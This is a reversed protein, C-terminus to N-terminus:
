TYQRFYAKDACRVCVRHIHQSRLLAGYSASLKNNYDTLPGLAGNVLHTTVCVIRNRKNRNDYDYHLASGQLLTPPIM